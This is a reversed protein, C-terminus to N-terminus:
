KSVVLKGYFTKGGSQASLFYLGASFGATNIHHTPAGTNQTHYVVRGNVDTVTLQGINQEGAQVTVVENAPNPYLQLSSESLEAVNTTCNTICGNSDVKILWAGINTYGALTIIGNTYDMAHFGHGGNGTVQYKANWLVTGDPKLKTLLSQWGMYSASGCVYINGQGDLTVDFLEPQANLNNAYTRWEEQFGADTKVLVSYSITNYTNQQMESAIFLYGGDPTAIAKTLRQLNNVPTLHEGLINGLSDVVMHHLHSYLNGLTDGVERSTSILVLGYNYPLVAAGNIAASDSPVIYKINKVMGPTDLFVLGTKNDGFTPLFYFRYGNVGDDFFRLPIPIGQSASDNMQRFALKNLQRDLIWWGLAPASISTVTDFYNRPEAVLIKSNTVQMVKPLVNFVYHCCTVPELMTSDVTNGYGDTKLVYQIWNNQTASITRGMLYSTDAENHLSNFAGFPYTKSFPISQAGAFPLCLFMLCVILPFNKVSNMIAELTTTLSM